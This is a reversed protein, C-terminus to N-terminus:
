LSLRFRKYLKLDINHTDNISLLNHINECNIIKNNNEDYICSNFIYRKIKNNELFEIFFFPTYNEIEICNDNKCYYHREHNIVYDDKIESKL